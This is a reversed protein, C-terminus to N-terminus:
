AAKRLAAPPEAIPDRRFMRRKLRRYVASECCGYALGFAIAVVGANVMAYRFVGLWVSAMLTILIVLMHSLYVGYSWDGFKVLWNRAALQRGVALRAVLLTCAAASVLISVDWRPIRPALMLLLPVAIPALWSLSKPYRTLPAALAGGLFPLTIPSVLLEGWIPYAQYDGPSVAIMRGFVAALWAILILRVFRIPVVLVSVGLVTYFAVEFVLSWEVGLPYFLNDRGVPMLSLGGVISGAGAPVPSGLLYRLVFSGLAAFWFPPYIRLLRAPLFQRPPTVPLSHILVFGSIAFFTFLAPGTLNVEIWHLWRSEMSLITRSQLSLHSFLVALACFFRAAQINNLRM